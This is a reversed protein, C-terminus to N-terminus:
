NWPVFLGLLIQALNNQRADIAPHGQQSKKEASKNTSLPGSIAVLKVASMSIALKQTKTNYDPHVIDFDFDSVRRSKKDM